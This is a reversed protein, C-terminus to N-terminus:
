EMFIAPKLPFANRAKPNQSNEAKEVDVKCVFEKEFFERNENLLAFEDIKEKGEFEKAIRFAQKAFQEVEKGNKRIEADAMLAKMVAGFDPREKCAEVALKVGKWKWEPATFVAIREPKEVKALEKIARVDEVIKQIVQEAQSFRSNIKKADFEPWKALSAFGKNGLAEWLEESVFPMVPNLMIAQASIAKKMLDKKPNNGTRYLYWKMVRQMEFFALQLASKFLAENMLEATEKIIRNIEAEFWKDVERADARGKGNWQKCFEIWQEIKAKMTEALSMEFNADDLGEGGSLITFRSSDCGFKVPLERLLIFNGKSKSMKEGNVTVWGNVGIGKPWKKEDDWIACHNFMFFTLHNQILDKGSNRFDVPYWYEFEKRLSECLKKDVKLEKSEKGLLVFDFFADNVKELPIKRIKHAITYYAMYITSDSLSEIVWKEDWPLKTGLGFERTCPWDNLWDIVYNFQTRSDEPYLKLGDLAKHCKKKWDDDGYKMFWQNSVIKVVAETLCRCVVKGTLEYFLGAQKKEIMENKVKDKAKIVPMGAYKGCNRNMTGEYFGKKYVIKKAEELKERELQSKIKMQEVIKLAAMDGLEKSDIIAIPRIAKVQEFNLGYKECESKSNQLDKLGIWDDPADSPVSTVIGTGKDPACFMAPLIPIEREIMPAIAKKGILERGEIKGAIEVKRDQEKLKEFFERSGIWVEGDVKAKQYQVEPNVWLNTQGFVTEPRLTAAIIFEKGFKFKLITFEQPGEGEGEVRSHDPVPSNDKTCWAIPHKGKVVLGKENLKRFQWRIFADYHPNLSTTIFSRRWDVSMGLAALDKKAEKPFYEVWKEPEGFEAIERDNFGLQKMIELQKPEKERIRQAANEIPSGTCHWGQPFLVNFGQMRKFRALAEVRMLTYFHGIHILSNMYPYPFTLFFKPKKSDPEAEFCKAKEWKELWKKEIGAFDYDM